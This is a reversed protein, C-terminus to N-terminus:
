SEDKAVEPKMRLVRQYYRRKFVRWGWFSGLVVVVVGVLSGTVTLWSDMVRSGYADVRLESAENKVSEGIDCGLDALRVAEDFDELRFAIQANALFEGADNLQALLSSVNARAQEADLVARYASTVVDEAQNIALSAVDESSSALGEFVFFPFLFVFIVSFVVLFKTTPM